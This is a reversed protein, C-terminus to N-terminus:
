VTGELGDPHHDPLTRLWNVAQSLSTFSRFRPNESPVDSSEHEWTVAYPVHLAWLGAELAPVIDSRLSNGVMASHPTLNGFVRRYTEPKKDSVIEIRDFHGALGSRELKRQQHLLDGKTILVREVRGALSSLAAEVGALLEVEKHIMARGVTFIELTVSAPIQHEFRSLILELMSLMYGSVGYGFDDLNRVHLEAMTSRFDVPDVHRAILECLRTDATVFDRADHWLTDDADFGVAKVPM